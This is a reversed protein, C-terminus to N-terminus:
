VSQVAEARMLRAVPVDADRPKRAVLFLREVADGFHRREYDGWLHAIEFGTREVLHELEFRFSYRLSWEVRAVVDGNLHYTTEMQVTQAPLDVDVDAHVIKHSGAVVHRTERRALRQLDPNFIDIAFLGGPRLHAFVNAVCAEQDAKTLIHGFSNAAVFAMGFRLPLSFSVGDARLPTARHRVEDPEAGLKGELRGLMFRSSDIGVVDYGTRILPILCRGTGCALELVPGGAEAALDLFIPIDDDIRPVQDYLSAAIDLDYPNM